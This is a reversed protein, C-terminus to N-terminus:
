IKIELNPAAFYINGPSGVKTLVVRLMKDSSAVTGSLSSSVAAFTNASASATSLTAITTGSPKADITISWYNSGNNTTAVYFGCTVSVLTITYGGSAAYPVANASFPGVGAYVGWPLLITQKDHVHSAAAYVSDLVTRIITGFEALTKKIWAGGGNGVQVDNAATTAPALVLDDVREALAQVNQITSNLNGSFGRSDLYILNAWNQKFSSAGVSVGQSYVVHWPYCSVVQSWEPSGGGKFEELVRIFGTVYSGILDQYESPVAVRCKDGNELSFDPRDRYEFMVRRYYSDLKDVETSTQQPIFGLNHVPYGASPRTVRSIGSLDVWLFSHLFFSTYWIFRIPVNPDLDITTETVGLMRQSPNFFLIKGDDLPATYVLYRQRLLEPVACQTPFLYTQGTPQFQWGHWSEGSLFVGTIYPLNNLAQSVTINVSCIASTSNFIHGKLVFKGHESKVDGILNFQPSSVVYEVGAIRVGRTLTWQTDYDFDFFNRSYFQIECQTEDFKYYVLDVTVSEFAGTLTARAIPEGRGERMANALIPDITRM